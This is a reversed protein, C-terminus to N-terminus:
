KEFVFRLNEIKLKTEVLPSLLSQRITTTTLPKQPWAALKLHGCIKLRQTWNKRSKRMSIRADSSADIPQVHSAYNVNQTHARWIKLNIKPSAPRSILPSSIPPSPSTKNTSLFPKTPHPLLRSLFPQLSAIEPKRIPFIGLKTELSTQSCAITSSSTTSYHTNPPNFQSNMTPNARNIYTLNRPKEAMAYIGWRPMDLPQHTCGRTIEPQLVSPLIKCLTLNLRYIGLLKILWCNFCHIFCAHLVIRWLWQALLDPAGYGSMDEQMRLFIDNLELAGHFSWGSAFTARYWNIHRYTRFRYIANLNSTKIEGKSDQKWM